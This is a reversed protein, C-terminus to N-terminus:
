GDAAPRAHSLSLEGTLSWREVVTGSLWNTLLKTNLLMTASITVVACLVSTGLMLATVPAGEASAPTFAISDSCITQEL